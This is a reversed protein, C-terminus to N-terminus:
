NVVMETVRIRYTMDKRDNRYEFDGVFDEDENFNVGHEKKADEILEKAFNYADNEDWFLQICTVGGSVFEVSDKIFETVCFVRDKFEGLYEDKLIGM